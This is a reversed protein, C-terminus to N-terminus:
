ALESGLFEGTTADVVGIFDDRKNNKVILYKVVWRLSDKFYELEARVDFVNGGTRQVEGGNREVENLVYSSDVEINCIERFWNSFNSKVLCDDLKQIKYNGVGVYPIEVYLLTDKINESFFRYIWRGSQKICGDYGLSKDFNDRVEVFPESFIGSLKANEDWARAIEQAEAYGVSSTLESRIPLMKLLSDLDLSYYNFLHKKIHPYIDKQLQHMAVLSDRLDEVTSYTYCPKMRMCGFVRIFSNKWIYENAFDNRDIVVINLTFAKGLGFHHVKELDFGIYVDGVLNSVFRCCGSYSKEYKFDPLVNKLYKRAESVFNVRGKVGKNIANLRRNFSEMQNSLQPYNQWDLNALRIEEAAGPLGAEFCARSLVVAELKDEHM